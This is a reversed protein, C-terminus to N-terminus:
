TLLCSIKFETWKDSLIKTPARFKAYVEDVYASVKEAVTKQM